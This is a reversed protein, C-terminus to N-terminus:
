DLTFNVYVRQSFSLIHGKLNMKTKNDAIKAPYKAHREEEEEEEGSVAGLYWAVVYALKYGGDLKADFLAMLSSFALSLGCGITNFSVEYALRVNKFVDGAQPDKNVDPHWKRALLRYAKKIDGFTAFRSVGLVNYHEESRGHGSVAMALPIGVLRSRRHWSIPRWLCPLALLRGGVDCGTTLFKGVQLHVLMRIGEATLSTLGNFVLQASSFHPTLIPLEM